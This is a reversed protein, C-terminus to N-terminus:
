GWTQVQIECSDAKVVVAGSYGYQPTFSRITFPHDWQSGKPIPIDLKVVDSQIDVQTLPIPFSFGYGQCKIFAEKRTWYSYFLESREIEQIELLKSVEEPNYVTKAVDLFEIPKHLEIDVGLPVPAIGFCLIDGSHSLNFHMKHQQPIFPKGHDSYSFQIDTSEKGTQEALLTKMMRRGHGFLSRAKEDKFAKFRELETPDLFSLATDIPGLQKIDSIFLQVQDM